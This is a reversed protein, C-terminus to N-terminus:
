FLLRKFKWEDWLFQYRFDREKQNDNYWYLKELDELSKDNKKM